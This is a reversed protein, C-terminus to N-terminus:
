RRDQNLQGLAGKWAGHELMLEKWGLRHQQPVVPLWQLVGLAGFLLGWQNATVGAVAGGGGRSDGGQLGKVCSAYKPSLMVWPYSSFLDTLEHANGLAKPLYVACSDEQKAKSSAAAATPHRSCLLHLRVPQGASTVAVAVKRLREVLSSSSSTSSSGTKMQQAVPGPTGPSFLNRQLPPRKRSSGGPINSSADASAQAARDGLFAAQQQTQQELAQELEALTLLGAAMPFALLQMLQQQHDPPLCVSDVLASVPPMSVAASAALAGALDATAADASAIATAASSSAAAKLQKAALADDWAAFAPLLWGEVVDMPEVPVVSLEQLFFFLLKCTVHLSFRM